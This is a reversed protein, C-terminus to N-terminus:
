VTSELLKEIHMNTNECIWYLLYKFDTSYKRQIQGKKSM